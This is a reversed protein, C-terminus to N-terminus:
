DELIQNKLSHEVLFSADRRADPPADLAQRVRSLLSTSSFPKELLDPESGTLGHQSLTDDTFGSMFLVRIDPRLQRARRAIEPGPMRPLVVDTLLLDIAGDHRSCHRLAATASEAALVTYGKRSLTREVLRRVPGSDEVILVTERGRAAVLPEVPDIEKLAERATPLYITFSTGAGVQSTVDIQGRSQSIIGYVSALGLGTGGSAEKTTFFPEFIQARTDDDMGTGTDSVRLAVYAGPTLMGSEVRFPVACEFNATELELRGGRPMADRANVVLNVIVQEVQGPDALIPELEGHLHTVLEVDEGILRRLMRDIDAVVANLDVREPQLVQRRSFALLQRTLSGAREAARLIEEIDRRTAHEAALEQLVLDSYGIIATLLNNFDHAIGGALRGVSEMKRAQGLHLESQRLADEARRRASIDRLSIALYSRVAKAEGGHTRESSALAPDVPARTTRAPENGLPDCFLFITAETPMAPGETSCTLAVEGNWPFSTTLRPIVDARLRHADESALFRLLPQGAISEASSAQLQRTAAENAFLVTTDLDCVFVFDTSQQIMQQLLDRGIEPARRASSASSALLTQRLRQHELTRALPPAVTALLSRIREPDQVSRRAYGALLGVVDGSEAVLAHGAFSEFDHGISEAVAPLLRTVGTPHLCAEGGAVTAEPLGDLVLSGLERFEGDQWCVLSECRDDGPGALRALMLRDLELAAALSAILSELGDQDDPDVGEVLRTLTLEVQKRQRIDKAQIAFLREGDESAFGSWHLSIWASAGAAGALSVDIMGDNTDFGRTSEYWATSLAARQNRHIASILEDIHTAGSFLEKFARNAAAFVGEESAIAMAHPGSEFVARYRANRLRDLAAESAIQTVERCVGAIAPEGSQRTYPRLTADFAIRVGDIRLVRFQVSVDSGTEVAKRFQALTHDRDEPALLELFSQGILSEPPRGFAREVARSVYALRGDIEFEVVIDAVQDLLEAEFSARGRRATPM